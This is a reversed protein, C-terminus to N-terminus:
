IKRDGGGASGDVALAARYETVLWILHNEPAEGCLEADAEFWELLDEHGEFCVHLWPLGGM